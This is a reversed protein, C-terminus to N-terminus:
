TRQRGIVQDVFGIALQVGRRAVGHQNAMGQGAMMVGGTEVTGVLALGAPPVAADAGALRDVGVFEKHDAQVVEAAAVAGGASVPSCQNCLWGRRASRSPRPWHPATILALRPPMCGGCHVM